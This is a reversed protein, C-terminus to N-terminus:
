LLMRSLNGVATVAGVVQFDGKRSKITITMLSSLILHSVSIKQPMEHLHQSVRSVTFVTLAVSCELLIKATFGCSRAGKLLSRQHSSTNHVGMVNKSVTKTTSGPGTPHTRLLSPLHATPVKFRLWPTSSCNDSVGTIGLSLLEGFPQRVRQVM